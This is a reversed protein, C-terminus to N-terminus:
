ELGSRDEGLPFKDRTADLRAHMCYRLTPRDDAFIDISFTGKESLRAQMQVGATIPVGIELFLSGTYTGAGAGM